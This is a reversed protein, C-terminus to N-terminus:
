ERQFVVVLNSAATGDTIETSLGTPFRIGQEGFFAPSTANTGARMVIKSGTPGGSNYVNGVGAGSFLVNYVRCGLGGTIDLSTGNGQLVNFDKPTTNNDNGGFPGPITGVGEHLNYYRDIWSLAGLIQDGPVESEYFWLCALGTGVPAVSNLDITFIGSFQIPSGVGGVALPSLSVEEGSIWCRHGNAANRTVAFSCFRRDLFPLQTSIATGPGVQDAYLIFAQTNALGRPPLSLGENGAHAMDEGFIAPNLAINPAEYMGVCSWDGSITYAVAPGLASNATEVRAYRRTNVFRCVPENAPSYTFIDRSGIRDPWLTIDAGDATTLDDALYGASAPVSLQEPHISDAPNAM